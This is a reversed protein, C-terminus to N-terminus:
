ERVKSLVQEYTAGFGYTVLIRKEEESQVRHLLQTNLLYACGPEVIYSHYNEEFLSVDNETSIQTVAKDSNLLGINICCNRGAEDRHIGVTGTTKIFHVREPYFKLDFLNELYSVVHNCFDPYKLKTNRSFSITGNSNGYTMWCMQDSPVNSFDAGYLHTVIPLTDLENFDILGNSQFKEGVKRFM